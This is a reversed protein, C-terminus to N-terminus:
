GAASRLADIAFPPVGIPAFTSHDVTVFVVSGEATVVGSSEIRTELEFTISKTGVRGVRVRTELVDGLTAMAKFNITLNATVVEFGAAQMKPTTLGVAEFLDTLTDDFYVAYNGNFVIGQADTDSYRVKRRYGALWEM